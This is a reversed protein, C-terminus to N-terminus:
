PSAALLAQRGERFLSWRRVRSGDPRKHPRVTLGLTELHQGWLLMWTYAVALFILLHTLRQPCTLAADELQWGFSKLDRFTEDISMRLAYEWGSLTPDNTVLSWPEQAQEGWVVRVHAQIRGRRKFVVGSAAYTQGPAEVQDYFTLETEDPLIIKSQRTVRFLFTWGLAMIGRMLEPSTGIGRDTLVLVKLGPPMGAQLCQLLQLIMQVQGEAPYEAASNARYLRWALPICRSQYALGVVMMALQDKLKSEDVVLVVRKLRLVKLVSSMWLRFFTEMPQAAKVFRQLRRRRSEAKGGAMGAIKWLQSSSALAVARSFIVINERCHRNVGKWSKSVQRVWQYLKRM